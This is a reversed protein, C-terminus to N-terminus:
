KRWGDPKYSRPKSLRQVVIDMDIESYSFVFGKHRLSNGDQYFSRCVSAVHGPNFGYEKVDSGSEYVRVMGNMDYQYVRKANSHRSNQKSTVWELNTYHNNLGNEDIHNVELSNDGDVFASAVIRHTKRYMKSGDVLMLCVEYYRNRSKRTPKTIKQKLPKMGKYESLVEGEKTVWYIPSVNEYGKITNIKKLDNVM